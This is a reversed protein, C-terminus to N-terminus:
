LAREAILCAVAMVACLLPFWDGFRPYVTEEAIYSFGTTSAAEIYPPLTGRLRGAPDITATIGDNTARLLWRRNEAARMRALLLHQRRAASRGFWGDNSVNILAEAGGRVFQRVFNPFASEYCIFTGIRHGAVPAVVVRTGAAFDGAETSIKNVFGFPWPVFEGFPVLNVKDYRSLPHGAPSVLLASNLPAGRPTHAVVGTLLYARTAGTLNTVRGRFNPDENWYLPAPMEPWVVISPPHAIDALVGGLSLQVLRQQLRDVSAATWDESESLNPQVLLATEDGPRADPLRPLLMALPAVALWLLERRPRRLAALALAAGMMAFLFSVGYVGTIPALRMPIGMDIGANGLALWAFGFSGHTAEVAVWLAAVAPVAWWRRM